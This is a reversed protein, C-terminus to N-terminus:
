KEDKDMLENIIRYNIHANFGRRQLYGFMRRKAILKDYKKLSKLKAQAFSKAAEFEIQETVTELVKEAIERPVGKKELEYSLFRKSRPKGRLRDKVWLQAFKLDDLYELDVLFVIVEEVQKETFNKKLLREAIEKKTRLRYRLLLFAYNKAKEITREM